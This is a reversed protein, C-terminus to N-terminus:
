LPRLGQEWHTRQEFTGSYQLMVKATKLQEQLHKVMEPDTEPLMDARTATPGELVAALDTSSKPYRASLIKM